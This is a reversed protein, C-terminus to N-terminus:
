IIAFTQHNRAVLRGDETWLERTELFYGDHCVPAVGRYLLPGDPPAGVLELTFAITAMPRMAPLRPLLAPWWADIMAAVYGTDRRECPTRPQVWGVARADGGSGPVGDVIRYELHKTFEPFMPAWPVPQLTSWHAATPPALEQWALESKRRAGAIAVVHARTEGHQVLAARATTVANGARLVEVTIEVPGPEVPGPLEATITRIVRAPDAIRDEIARVLVAVVLGGYM